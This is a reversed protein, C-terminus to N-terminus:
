NFIGLFHSGSGVVVMVLVLETEVPLASFATKRM